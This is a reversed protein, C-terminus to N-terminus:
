YFEGLDNCRGVFIWEMRYNDEECEDEKCMPPFYEAEIITETIEPIEFDIDLDDSFEDGDEMMKAISSKPLDSKIIGGDGGVVWIKM